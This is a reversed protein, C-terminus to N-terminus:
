LSWSSGLRPCSALIILFNSRIIGNCVKSDFWSACTSLSFFILDEFRDCSISYTSISSFPFASSYRATSTFCAKHFNLNNMNIEAFRIDHSDYIALFDTAWHHFPSGTLSSVSGLFTQHSKEVWRLCNPKEEKVPPGHEGQLSYTSLM